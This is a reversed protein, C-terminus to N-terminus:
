DERVMEDAGWREAVGGMRKQQNDNRLGKAVGDEGDVVGGWWWDCVCKCFMVWQHWCHAWQMAVALSMQDWLSSTKEQGTLMGKKM